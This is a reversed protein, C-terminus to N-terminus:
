LIVLLLAVVLLFLAVSLVVAGVAVSSADRAPALEGPPISASEVGAPTAHTPRAPLGTVVPVLEGLTAAGYLTDMRARYEDSDLRGTAYADNLRATLDEREADSVPVGPTSRYKSSRPLDTM